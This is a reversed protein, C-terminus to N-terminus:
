VWSAREMKQGNYTPYDTTKTKLILEQIACFDEVANNHTEYIKSSPWHTLKSNELKPSSPGGTGNSSRASRIREWTIFDRLMEVMGRSELIAGNSDVHFPQYIATYILNTPIEYSELEPNVPNILAIDAIFLDYLSAGLLQVLYHKEFPTIWNARFKVLEYDNLNTTNQGDQFNALTLLSM